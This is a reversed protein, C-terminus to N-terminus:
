VQRLSNAKIFYLLQKFDKILVDLMTDTCGIPKIYILRRGMLAFNLFNNPKM